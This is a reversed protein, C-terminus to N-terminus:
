FEVKTGFTISKSNPYTLYDLGLNVSNGGGWSNVEPDMGSYNTITLINQASVYIKVGKLWNGVSWKAVPLNYALSINKLRLFSGDEVYRDSYNQKVSRSAKPYKAAMNQAETNDAKWHSYLVDRKLNLGIGVDMNATEGINFIDNGQSGQFFFSFEFDKFRIDSNFGYTFDPHPNGTIYKDDNTLTENGDRDEYALNGTEDYGTEKYTYFVGLPEGERILNVFDEIYALGVRGGYIDKGGYLEKVENKNVAINASATWSFDKTNMIDGDVMLEFGKNSMKGINRITTSYGSSAPLTVANLLDRTTKNYYDATLRLRQNFLSADLGINYQATTEWKLNAPLTTSAAYYTYLDGNVPTKGQSLMNLTTYPSIATSGTEGYGVRLKLDSIQEVNKLFSEDSIRWALAVSPFYGWKDGKSYRSSGDARFSVTALYKSNFSYNIRGLYSMITWDTYSTSPTGFTSAAGLQHSEPADSIYDSGSASMKKELYDQYTFGGTVDIRHKEVLTINYNAINENIISTQRTNGVSASAMGYLYKSTTYNDDRFDLSEIGFSSKISLGKIPKYTLAINNNSLDAETKNSQENILNIPNFLANSMFPYALRLDQYTGDENYPSLSPPSSIAGGMLSGGRNGGGSNKNSKNTRAYSSTLAVDFYDNIAHDINSRLNYKNYYSNPILGDRLMASASILIQTKENGGSITLNHNQIPADKFVLSQWDTGKGMAAIEEATFYEKGTDNLQQENNYLAWETADMMDLKKIQSQIGYSGDYVVSTAGTEGRKTTILIVGNAGRSGYIATASADKLVEISEIDQNNISSPNSPIGDIIYLPTNDGRISNTGRIRISFNGEPSGSNSTIVVGPARGQLAQIPNAVTFATVDKSKVSSLSGTLDSKRMTGYGVVVVEDLVETNPSLSISVTTQGNLPYELSNYGIFRCVLIANPDNVELSFKGDIDAATGISTGKIVVSAGILPENTQKDFLTGTITRNQAISPSTGFVLLFLLCLIFHTKQTLWERM